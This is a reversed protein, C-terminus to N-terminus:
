RRNQIVIVDSIRQPDISSLSRFSANYGSSAHLLAAIAISCVPILQEIGSRQRLQLELVM